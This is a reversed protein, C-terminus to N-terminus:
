VVSEIQVMCACRVFGKFYRYVDTDAADFIGSSKRTKIVCFQDEDSNVSFTRVNSWSISLSVNKMMSNGGCNFNDIPNNELHLLVNFGSDFRYM